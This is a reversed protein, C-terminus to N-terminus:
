EADWKKTPAQCTQAGDRNVAAVRDLSQFFNFADAQVTQLLGPHEIDTVAANAYGAALLAGTALAAIALRKTQTALTQLTTTM